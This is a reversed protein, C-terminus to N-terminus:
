YETSMALVVAAAVIGVTETRLVREGLSVPDFGLATAAAEEVADLGSTRGVLLAVPQAAPAQAVAASLLQASGPVLQLRLTTEPLWAHWAALGAPPPIQPLTMRGCQATASAAIRQWRETHALEEDRRQTGFDTLFTISQVGTETMKEVAWDLRSRPAAGQGIHIVREADAPAYESPGVVELESQKKSTKHLHCKAERSQGDCVYIIANNDQRLVSTLYHLQTKDLQLRSGAELVAGAIVLRIRHWGATNGKRSAENSIDVM